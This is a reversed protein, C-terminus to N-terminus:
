FVFGLSVQFKDSDLPTEGSNRHDGYFQYDAKVTLNTVPNFAVGVTTYNRNFRGSKLAPDAINGRQTDIESWRFFLKADANSLKRKKWENPMFHYAGEVWYGSMTNGIDTVGLSAPNDQYIFVYEGILDFNNVSYKGDFAAVTTYASKDKGSNGTYFSLNTYLNSCPRLELRGALAKGRNNDENYNQRGGRIGNAASFGGGNLGNLVMIQYDARSGLSGYISAGM